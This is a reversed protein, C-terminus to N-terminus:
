PNAPKIANGLAKIVDPTIDNPTKAYVLVPMSTNSNGSVDMLIDFGKQTAVETAVQQIHKIAVKTEAVFNKNIEGMKVTRFEEFDRKLNMATQMKNEYAKTAEKIQDNTMSKLNATDTKRKEELEKAMQQLSTVRPDHMIEEQRQQTSAQLKQTADLQQYIDAIRVTAIKPPQACVATIGLLSLLLSATFAKVLQM